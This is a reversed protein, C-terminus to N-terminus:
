AAGADHSPLGDDLWGWNGYYWISRIAHVSVGFDRALRAMNAKTHAARKVIRAQDETLKVHRNKTGRTSRGHAVMDANNEAPTGWALNSPRNDSPDGNLHRCLSGEPAPGTFAELVM